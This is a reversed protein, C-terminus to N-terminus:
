KDSPPQMKKTYKKQYEHFISSTKPVPSPRLPIYQKEPNPYWTGMARKVPVGPSEDDAGALDAKDSVDNTTDKIGNSADKFSFTNPLVSFRLVNNEQLPVVTQSGNEAKSREHVAPQKLTVEDKKTKKEGLKFGHSLSRRRKLSLSRKNNGNWISMESSAPLEETNASGSRETKKLSVKSLTHKQTKLKSRYKIRIPPFSKRWKEHIWRKVSYEGTPVTASPKRKLPSLSVSLVEPPKPVEDSVTQPSSRHNKHGGVLVCKEQTATGFLVLEVTRVNSAPPEGDAANVSVKMCKSIGELLQQSGQDVTEHKCSFTQPAATASIQGKTKLPSVNPSTLQAQGCDEELDSMQNSRGDESSSVNEDTSERIFIISSPSSNISLLSITNPDKDSYSDPKDDSDSLDIIHSVENCLEPETLTQIQNVISECGKAQNERVMASHFKSDPRIAFLKDNKQAAMEEEDLTNDTCDKQSQEKKFQCTSLSPTNSGMIIQKWRTNCCIHELPAVARNELKSDPSNTVKELQCVTETNQPMKSQVQEFIVKAEEPPLVQIELKSDSITLDMVEPLEDEVPNNTVKELQCVKETNQPIKSQLGEFILKAEEPPLVQIEFSFFPDSSDASETKNPSPTQTPAVEVTSHQEDDSEVPELETQSLAKNQVEGVIQAPISKATEVQDSQSDTDLTHPCRKLSWPFGFEKDIDNLRENANLWSSVYPLESYVENDAIVHFSKLHKEFSHKVQSLIPSDLAVHKSCFEHVDTILKKYWGTRLRDALKKCSGDWYMSLLMRSTNFEPFLESKMQAEEGEQILKIISVVTWPTTPLSSLECVFTKADPTMESKDKDGNQSEPVESTLQAAPAVVKELPMNIAAESGTNDACLQKQSQQPGASDSSSVVPGDSFAASRSRVENLNKPPSRCNDKVPNSVERLYAAMKSKTVDPSILFKEPNIQSEDTTIHEHEQNIRKSSTDNGSVQYCEQALPQVVAIAKPGTRGPSSHVSSDNPNISTLMELIELFERNNAVSSHTKNRQPSISEPQQMHQPLEDVVHQTPSILNQTTKPLSYGSHLSLSQPVNSKYHGIVSSPVPAMTPNSEIMRGKSDFQKGNYPSSTYMPPRADSGATFSQRDAFRASMQRSLMQQQADAAPNLPRENTKSLFRDIEYHCNYSKSNVSSTSAKGTNPSSNFQTSYQQTKQSMNSVHLSRGSSPSNTTISSNRLSQSVAVNYTPPPISSPFRHQTSNQRHHQNPATQINHATASMLTSIGVAQAPPLSTATTSFASIPNTLEGNVNQYLNRQVRPRLLDSLTSENQNGTLTVSMDKQTYTTHAKMMDSPSQSSSNQASNQHFDQPTAVHFRYVVQSRPNGSQMNLSSNQLDGHLLKQYGSNKGGAPQQFSVAQHPVASTQGNSTQRNSARNGFTFLASQPPRVGTNETRYQYVNNATGVQQNRMTDQTLQKAAPSSQSPPGLQPYPGVIWGFSQM